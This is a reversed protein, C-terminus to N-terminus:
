HVHQGFGLGGHLRVDEPIRVSIGGILGNLLIANIPFESGRRQPIAVKVVSKCFATAAEPFQSVEITAM